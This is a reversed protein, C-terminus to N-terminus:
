VWVDQRTKTFSQTSVICSKMDKHRHM